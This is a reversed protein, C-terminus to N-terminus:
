LHLFYKKSLSIEQIEMQAWRKKYKWKMGSFSSAEVKKADEWRMCIALILNHSGDDGGFYCVAMPFLHCFFFFIIKWKFLVERISQRWSSSRM